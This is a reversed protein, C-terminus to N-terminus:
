LMILFCPSPSCLGTKWALLPNRKCYVKAWESLAKWALEEIPSTLLHLPFFCSTSCPLRLIVPTISLFKEGATKTQKIVSAGCLQGAAECLLHQRLICPPLSFNRSFPLMIRCWPRKYYKEKTELLSGFGRPCWHNLGYCSVEGLLTPPLEHMPMEPQFVFALCRSDWATPCAPETIQAPSGM